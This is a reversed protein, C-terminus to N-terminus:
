NSPAGMQGHDMKGHQMNGHVPMRELDVPIDVVVDGAKEFTLTVQVMDGHALSRNLGLFMVHDGGRELAHTEGAAIPFGEEVHIMQMVGQNNSLHTHLEVRQAVDSSVGILRDDEGTMNEIMMFAAGSKSMATSVRAYPDQVMMGDAFAPLAFAIASVAALTTKFLSM